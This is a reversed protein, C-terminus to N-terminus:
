SSQLRAASERLLGATSLDEDIEPWHIGYGGGAIQWNARQEATAHM